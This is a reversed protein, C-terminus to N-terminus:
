ADPGIARAPALPRALAALLMLGAVLSILWLAWDYAYLSAAQSKLAADVTDSYGVAMLRDFGPEVVLAAVATGALFLALSVLLLNRRTTRWHVVITVLVLALTEWFISSDYGYEGEFLAFSRPPAAIATRVIVVIAFLQAGIQAFCSSIAAILSINKIANHM